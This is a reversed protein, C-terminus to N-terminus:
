STFENLIKSCLGLQMVHEQFPEVDFTKILDLFVFVQKGSEITQDDTIKAIRELSEKIFDDSAFGAVITLEKQGIPSKCGISQCLEITISPLRKLNFRNCRFRNCRFRNGRFWNSRFWNSRFWNSRFSNGCVSNDRLRWRCFGNLFLHSRIDSQGFQSRANAIRFKTETDKRVRVQHTAQGIMVRGRRDMTTHKENSVYQATCKPWRIFRKRRQTRIKVRIQCRPFAHRQLGTRFVTLNTM